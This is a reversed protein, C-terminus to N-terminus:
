IVEEQNLTRSSHLKASHNGAVSWMSVAYDNGEFSAIRSFPLKSLVATQRSEWLFLAVCCIRNTVKVAIMCDPLGSGAVKTVKEHFISQDNGSLVALLCYLVKPFFHKDVDQQSTEEPLKGCYQHALNRGRTRNEGSSGPHNHIFSCSEWYESDITKWRNM